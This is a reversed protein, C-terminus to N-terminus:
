PPIRKTLKLSGIVVPVITCKKIEVAEIDMSMYGYNYNYKKEKEKEKEEMRKGETEKEEIRTCENSKEGRVIM